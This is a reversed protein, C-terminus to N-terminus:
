TQALFDFGPSLGRSLVDFKSGKRTFCNRIGDEECLVFWLAVLRKVRSFTRLFNSGIMDEEAAGVAVTSLCKTSAIFGGVM